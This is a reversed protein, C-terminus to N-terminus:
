LGPTGCSLLCLPQCTLLDCKSDLEDGNAEGDDNDGNGNKCCMCCQERKRQSSPLMAESKLVSM